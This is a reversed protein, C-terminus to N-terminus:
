REVGGVWVRAVPNSGFTHALERESQHHLLIADARAGPALTGRRELGLMRAPTRTTALIAEEPTVPANTPPGNFRCALAIAMPISPCPASGPNLNTAICLNAGHDLLTRADAYRRDEEKVSLHFGSCPLVVAHTQSKAVRQLLAPSSAELHDVSLFGRDLAAEVMGFSTFQDAHVRCPHGNRQAAEFLELCEELHWAAPEAYADIAIGPFEASVAPLTEDITTRIFRDRPIDPDLAHGICATAVVTGPFRDGADAIARLMKLEDATRLGYGSKVEVVATGHALMAHLRELLLEALQQQSAERVARVTSMIGGGAKLLDIYSAGALRAAWEDTRDGAWCAHTHCDTFAPMLVRRNANLDASGPPDGAHVEEVRGHKFRIWGREILGLPGQGLREDLTLIRANTILTM